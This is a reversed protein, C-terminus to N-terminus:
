VICIFLKTERRVSSLRSLWTLQELHQAIKEGLTLQVALAVERNKPRLYSIPAGPQYYKNYFASVESYLTPIFLNKIRTFLNFTHM